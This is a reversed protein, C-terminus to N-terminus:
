SVRAYLGATCAVSTCVFQILVAAHLRRPTTTNHITHLAALPQRYPPIPPSAPIRVRIDHRGVTGGSPDLRVATRNLAGRVIFRRQNLALPKDRGNEELQM